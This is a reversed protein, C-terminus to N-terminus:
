NKKDYKESMLGLIKSQGPTTGFMQESWPPRSGLNKERPTAWPKRWILVPRLGFGKKGRSPAGLKQKYVLHAPAGIKQTEVRLRLAGAKANRSKHIALASEWSISALFPQSLQKCNNSESQLWTLDNMMILYASSKGIRCICFFGDDLGRPDPCLCNAHQNKSTLYLLSDFFTPQKIEFYDSFVLLHDLFWIKSSFRGWWEM